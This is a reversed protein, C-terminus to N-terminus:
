ECNLNELERVGFTADAKRRPCDELLLGAPKDHRSSWGRQVEHNPAEPSAANRVHRTPRHAHDARRPGPIMGFDLTLGMCRL